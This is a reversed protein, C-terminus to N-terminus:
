GEHVWSQNFQDAEDASMLDDDTMSDDHIAQTKKKQYDAQYNGRVDALKEVKIPHYPHIADHQVQEYVTRSENIFSDFDLELNSSFFSRLASVLVDRQKIATM